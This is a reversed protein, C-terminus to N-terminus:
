PTKRRFKKNKKVFKTVNITTKLTKKIQVVFFDRLNYNTDKLNQLDESRTSTLVTVGDGFLGEMIKSNVVTPNELQYLFLITKNKPHKRALAYTTHIHTKEIKM